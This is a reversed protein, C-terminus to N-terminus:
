ETTQTLHEGVFWFRGPKRGFYVLQEYNRAAYIRDPKGLVTMLETKSTGLPYKGKKIAEIRSPQIAQEATVAQQVNNVPRKEENKISAAGASATAAGHLYSSAEPKRKMLNEIENKLGDIQIGASDTQSKLTQNEIALRGRQTGAINIKYTMLGILLGASILLTGMVLSTLQWRMKAKQTRHACTEANRLLSEMMDQRNDGAQEDPIEGVARAEPKISETQSGGEALVDLLLVPTPRFPTIKNKDAKPNSKEGGALGIDALRGNGTLADM